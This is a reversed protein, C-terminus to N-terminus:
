RAVARSIFGSLNESGTFVIGERGAAFPRESVKVVVLPKTRAARQVDPDELATSAVILVDASEAFDMGVRRATAHRWMGVTLDALEDVRHAALEIPGKPGPLLVTVVIGGAGLDMGLQALAESALDMWALREEAGGEVLGVRVVSPVNAEKVRALIKEDHSRAVRKWLIDKVEFSPGYEAIGYFEQGAGRTGGGVDGDTIGAFMVRSPRNLLSAPLVESVFEESVVLRKAWFLGLLDSLKVELDLGTHRGALSGSMLFSGGSPTAEIPDIRLGGGSRVSVSTLSMLKTGTASVKLTVVASRFKFLRITTPVVSIVIGRSAGYRFVALSIASLMALVFALVVFIGVGML